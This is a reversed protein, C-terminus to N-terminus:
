YKEAHSPANQDGFQGQGHPPVLPHQLRVKFSMTKQVELSHERGQHETLITMMAHLMAKLM